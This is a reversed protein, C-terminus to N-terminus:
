FFDLFFLTLNQISKFIDHFVSRKWICLHWFASDHSLLNDPRTVIHKGVLEM